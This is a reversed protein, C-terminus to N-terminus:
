ATFSPLIAVWDSRTGLERQVTVLPHHIATEKKLYDTTARIIGKADDAAHGFATM